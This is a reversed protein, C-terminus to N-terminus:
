ENVTVPVFPHAEEVDTVIPLLVEAGVAPIVADEFVMVQVVELMVKVADPLPEYRQSLLEVPAVRVTVDPPVYEKVTVPVFPHAEEVDTVIPLLVEAGVAPMVADEFVMVQVVELM